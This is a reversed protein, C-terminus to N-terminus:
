NGNYKYVVEEVDNGIVVGLGGYDIVGNVDIIANRYVKRESITEKVMDDKVYDYALPFNRDSTCADKIGNDANSQELIGAYYDKWGNPEDCVSFHGNSTELTPVVMGSLGPDSSSSADLDLRGLHSPHVYRYVIPVASKGGQEGIGSIGKVTCALAIEADNDNVHDVYPVLNSTNMNKILYAPDTNIVRIIDNFSVNAGKDSIRYIGTSLKAAYIYPLYEDAMRLLKTSIDLNDKKRLLSFERLLWMLINYTDEKDEPPLNITERTRIDYISEFSDLVPIGKGLTASSFEGGLSMTWYRPDFVDEFDNYKKINKMLTYCFTQTIRDRDFLIKPVSIIVRSNVAGKSNKLILNYYIDPNMPPNSHLQKETFDEPIETIYIQQIGLLESAGYIGYRGLIFKLGDIKKKFVYATYLTCPLTQNDGLNVVEVMERYTNIPMFQTKLTVKTNKSNASTVNNYTSGDVIQYMPSYYNGGIRFYYKDVYIPLIILSQFKGESQKPKKTRSDVGIKDAPINLKIYYTTKLLMIDSDRISIYEYPNQSKDKNKGGYYERLTDQIKDYDTIVEFGLVDLIFYKDRRCSLIVKKIGEIIDENSREFLKDNFEPRTKDNFDRIFRYIDPRDDENDIYKMNQANYYHPDPTNIVNNEMNYYPFMSTDFNNMM